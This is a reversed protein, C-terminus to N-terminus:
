FNLGCVAYFKQGKKATKGSLAAKELATGCWHASPRPLSFAWRSSASSPRNSLMIGPIALSAPAAPSILARAGMRQTPDISQQLAWTASIM